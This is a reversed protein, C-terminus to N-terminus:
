FYQFEYGGKSRRRSPKNKEQPPLARTAEFALLDEELIRWRAKQGTGESVNLARLDGNKIWYLVRHNGVNYRAAIDKVRLSM